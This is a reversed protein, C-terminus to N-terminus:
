GAVAVVLRPEESALDREAVFRLFAGLPLGSPDYPTPVRCVDTIANGAATACAAPDSGPHTQQLYATLPALFAEAVDAAASVASRTLLADALRKEVSPSPWHPRADAM